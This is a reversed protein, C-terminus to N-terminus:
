FADSNLFVFVTVNKSTTNTKESKLKDVENSYIM